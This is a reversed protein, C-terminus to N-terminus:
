NKNEIIYEQYLVEEQERAEIEHPQSFYEIDEILQKNYQMKGQHVKLSGTVWQRLHTFEHLLTKIYLEENMYTDLEILFNRPRYSTGVYDCYGYVHDKKLSRHTIKVNIKYRSLFKNLFWCSVSTCLKRRFGYGDIELVSM